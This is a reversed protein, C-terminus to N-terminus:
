ALAVRQPRQRAAEIAGALSPSVDHRRVRGDDIVDVVHRDAGGYHDGASRIQRSSALLARVERWSKRRQLSEIMEILAATVAEEASPCNKGSWGSWSRYMFNLM